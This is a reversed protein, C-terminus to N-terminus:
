TSFSKKSKKLEKLSSVHDKAHVTVINGSSNFVQGSASNTLFSFYIKALKAVLRMSGGGYLFIKRQMWILQRFICISSWNLVTSTRSPKPVDQGTVAEPKKFYSSLSKKAKKVAPLVTEDANATSTPEATEDGAVLHEMEAAARTKVFNIREERIYATKFRPDLLTTTIDDYKDNLYNLM